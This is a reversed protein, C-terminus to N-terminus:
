YKVHHSQYESINSVSVTEEAELKHIWEAVSPKMNAIMERLGRDIDGLTSWEAPVYLGNVCTQTRAFGNRGRERNLQIKWGNFPRVTTGTVAELFEKHQREDWSSLVSMLLDGM